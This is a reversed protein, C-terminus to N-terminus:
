FSPSLLLSCPSSRMFHARQCAQSTASCVNVVLAIIATQPLFHGSCCYCCLHCGWSCSCFLVSCFLVSCCIVANHMNCSRATAPYHKGIYMHCLVGTTVNTCPAWVPGGYCDRHYVTTINATTTEGGKPGALPAAPLPAAPASYYGISCKIFSTTDNAQRWFGHKAKLDALSIEPYRDPAECDGGPPCPECATGKRGSRSIYVEKCYCDTINHGLTAPERETNEPCSTCETAGLSSSIGIQLQSM